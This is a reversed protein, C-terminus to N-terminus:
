LWGFRSGSAILSRGIRPYKDRLVALYEAEDPLAQELTEHWEEIAIWTCQIFDYRKIVECPNGLAICFPPLSHTVISGAGIISGRGIEVGALITVSAGLWVNPGLLIKEGESPGSGLYPIMPDEIIHGAGLFHCDVSTM